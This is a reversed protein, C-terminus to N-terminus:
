VTKEGPVSWSPSVVVGTADADNAPNGDNDSDVSADYDWSFTGQQGLRNPTSSANLSISEGLSVTAM